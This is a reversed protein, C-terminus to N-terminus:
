RDCNSSLSCPRWFLCRSRLIEAELDLNYSWCCEIGKQNNENYLSCDTRVCTAHQCWVRWPITSRTSLWPCLCGSFSSCFDFDVEEHNLKKSPFSLYGLHNLLFSATIKKSSILLTCIRSIDHCTRQINACIWSFSANQHSAILNGVNHIEFRPYKMKYNWNQRQEVFTLATQLPFRISTMSYNLCANSKLGPVCMLINYLLCTQETMNIKWFM